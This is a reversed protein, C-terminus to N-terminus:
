LNKLKKIFMKKNKKYFKRFDKASVEGPYTCCAGSNPIEIWQNSWCNVFIPNYGELAPMLGKTWWQSDTDPNMGTEAIAYPMGLEDAITKAIKLNAQMHVRFRKRAEDVGFEKQRYCEVGIIDVYEKGPFRQMYDKEDVFWAGPSFCYQLNTLGRSTLYDHTMQWLWVYETPSCDDAGWWFWNGNCEHWPRFVIPILQGTDDRLTLLFDAVRGLYQMFTQYTAGERRLIRAVTGKNEERYFYSLGHEPNRVHWSITIKGGSKHQRIISTRMKEFTVGGWYIERGLELGDLDTSLLGPYAKCVQYVDPMLQKKKKGIRGQPSDSWYRGYLLADNHGFLTSHSEQAYMSSFICLFVCISVLFFRM